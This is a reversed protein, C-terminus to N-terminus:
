NLPDTLLMRRPHRTSFESVVEESTLQIDRHYFLMALGNLRDQGMSSRLPSKIYKLMSISRECECSTVPLTAMIRMLVCINPFFDSDTHALAKEATDLDSALQPESRWKHQWLDLESPFSVPSPLDDHYFQFINQFYSPSCTASDMHMIASPLLQIFKIVNQSTTDNFRASLENILHDLLPITLNLRYYDSCNEAQVNSRYLQRGALRLSSEEIGVCQAMQTAQRYIRDHFTNVNSRAGQITAKVNEVDRHARAVDVYQGQLKVSLGKTYALVNQTAVLAVTFSFQSMALLLAAADSRTDRNWEENTSNSIAELCRVIPIFLDTFVEFAEHREM